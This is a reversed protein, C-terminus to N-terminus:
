LAPRIAPLAEFAARSISRCSSVCRRHRFLRPHSEKLVSSLIADLMLVLGRSSFRRGLTPRVFVALADVPHQRRGASRVSLKLLIL